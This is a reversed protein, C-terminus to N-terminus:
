YCDQKRYYEIQHYRDLLTRLDTPVADTLKGDEALRIRGTRHVIDTCSRLELNAQMFADGSWGCLNFFESMLFCPSFSDGVGVFDNGLVEKATNNAWIVYPTSYYNYFGQEENLDLSIGLEEYVFSNDGLWPNHDGFLILVVPEDVARFYDFLMALAADTTAIGALYNNFINYAEESLGDHSVYEVTSYMTDTVYPGHNQYTVNFNFYPSGDATSEEYLTILDDFFDPDIVLDGSATTYRNEFFYANEFGFYESVNARNYFWSFSPHAFTTTYGQEQFYRAFSGANKRYDYNFTNGTLFGRETDITGAAFINTVLTGSWSEEQIQHFVAYPDQEFEIGDFSSFDNYAELMISIINVKQNEPIDAEPYAELLTKATNTRYGAPVDERFSTFSHLFPYLFGHCVYRDTDSWQSMVRDDSLAIDTNQTEKYLADDAYIHVYLVIGVVLVLALGFLRSSRKWPSKPLFIAAITLVLAAGCILIVPWLLEPTLTYRTSIQMAESFLTIDSAMLPDGRFSLKLYNVVTPVLVLVSSGLTALWIRNTLLYFLFVIVIVPLLNLVLLPIEALYALFLPTGYGPCALYLSAVGLGLAWLLLILIGTWNPLSRQPHAPKIKKSGQEPPPVRNETKPAAVPAPSVAVSM